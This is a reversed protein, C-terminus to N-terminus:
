IISRFCAKFFSDKRHFNKVFLYFCINCELNQSSVVLIYHIVLHMNFKLVMVFCPFPVFLYYSDSSFNFSFWWKCNCWVPYRLQRLESPDDVFKSHNGHFPRHHGQKDQHVDSGHGAICHQQTDEDDVLQFRLFRHYIRILQKVDKILTLLMEILVNLDDSWIFFALVLVVDLPSSIQVSHVIVRILLVALPLPIFGM